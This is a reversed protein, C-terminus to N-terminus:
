SNNVYWNSNQACFQETSCWDMKVYDVGWSAFTAADQEYHGFSGTVNTVNRMGTSCTTTGADIYVGLKFERAHLWEILAPLGSPFRAPDAYMAGDKDRTPNAWCDDM